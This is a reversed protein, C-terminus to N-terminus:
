KVFDKKFYRGEINSNYTNEKELVEEIMQYKIESYTLEKKSFAIHIIERVFNYDGLLQINKKLEPESGYYNIWDSEKIVKKKSPKKGPRKEEAIAALERKGLKV